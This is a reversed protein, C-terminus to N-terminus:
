RRRKSSRKKTKKKTKSKSKLKIKKPMDLDYPSEIEYLKGAIFIDLDGDSEFEYDFPTDAQEGFRELEYLKERYKIQVTNASLYRYEFPLNSGCGLTSILFLITLVSALFHKIKM